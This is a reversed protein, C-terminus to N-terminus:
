RPLRAHAPEFARDRRQSNLPQSNSVSKNPDAL